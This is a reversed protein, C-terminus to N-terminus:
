WLITLDFDSCLNFFVLNTTSNTIIFEVFNAAKATNSSGSHLRMEVKIFLLIINM